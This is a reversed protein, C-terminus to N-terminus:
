PETKEGTKEHCEGSEANYIAEFLERIREERCLLKLYGFLAELSTARRYDSVSSSKPVTHPSANRGRRLIDAEEETLMKEIIGVSAAQYSARVRLVAKKHLSSVNTNGELLIKERVLEEYVSDGLFALNLPNYSRAQAVTLPETM